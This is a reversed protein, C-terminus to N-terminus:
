DKIPKDTSGDDSTVKIPILKGDKNTINKLKRLIEEQKNLREEEEETQEKRTFAERIKKVIKNAM